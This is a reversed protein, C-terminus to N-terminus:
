TARFHAIHMAELGWVLHKQVKICEEHRKKHRKGSTSGLFLTNVKTDKIEKDIYCSPLLYFWNHRHINLQGQWSTTFVYTYM